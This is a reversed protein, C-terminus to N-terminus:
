NNITKKLLEVHAAASHMPPHCRQMQVIAPHLDFGRGGLLESEVAVVVDEIVDSLQAGVLLSVEEQQAQRDDESCREDHGVREGSSNRM